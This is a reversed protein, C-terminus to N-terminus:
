VRYALALALHKLTGTQCMPFLSRQKFPFFYWYFFDTQRREQSLAESFVEGLWWGWTNKLVARYYSQLNPEWKFYFLCYLLIHKLTPGRQSQCFTAIPIHAAGLSDWDFDM